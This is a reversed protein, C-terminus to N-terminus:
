CSCWRVSRRMSSRARVGAFPMVHLQQMLWVGIFAGVIGIIINWLLGFGFGRVILGALWGAIAGIVLMLIISQIGIVPAEWNGRWIPLQAAVCLLKARRRHIPSYLSILARVFGGPGKAPSERVRDIAANLEAGFIFILATFYLFVLAIMVSALGAYYRVYIHPFSALYRSFAIGCALWLM